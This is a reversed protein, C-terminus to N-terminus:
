PCQDEELKPNWELLIEAKLQEPKKGWCDGSGKNCCPCRLQHFDRLVQYQRVHKWISPINLFREGTSWEIVNRARVTLDIGNIVYENSITGTTTLDSIKTSLKSFLDDLGSM